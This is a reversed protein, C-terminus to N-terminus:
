QGSRESYLGPKASTATHVVQPVNGSISVAFIPSIDWLKLLGDAGITAYSSTNRILCGGTVKGKHARRSLVLQRSGVDWIKFLGNFDGGFIHRGDASFQVLM